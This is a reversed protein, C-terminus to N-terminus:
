PISVEKTSHYYVHLVNGTNPNIFSFVEKFGCERLVDDWCKSTNPNKTTKQLSTLVVESAIGSTKICDQFDTIATKNPRDPFDWIHQIGCCDGGHYSKDINSM